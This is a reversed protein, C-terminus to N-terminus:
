SDHRDEAADTADKHARPTRAPLLLVAIDGNPSARPWGSGAPQALNGDGGVADGSALSARVGVGDGSALSARVGVGDGSALSARVGVRERLRSLSTLDTGAIV